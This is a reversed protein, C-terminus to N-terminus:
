VWSCERHGEAHRGRAHKGQGRERTLNVAVAADSQGYDATDYGAGGDLVDAGEGGVFYDNGAGGVLTDNGDRGHLRNDGGDGTLHDAYNSGYLQEIGTLTDGEAHGGAAEGTALNVTVSADSDWYGAWDDM